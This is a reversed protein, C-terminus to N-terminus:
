EAPVFKPLKDYLKVWTEILSVDSDYTILVLTKKTGNRFLNWLCDIEM